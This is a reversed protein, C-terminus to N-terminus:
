RALYAMTKMAEAKRIYTRITANPIRASKVWEGWERPKMNRRLDLLAKGALIAHLESQKGFRLAAQHQARIDAALKPSM